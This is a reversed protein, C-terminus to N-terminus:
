VTNIDFDNHQMATNNYMVFFYFLTWEAIGHLSHTVTLELLMYLLLFFTYVNKCGIEVWNNIAIVVVIIGCELFLVLIDCHISVISAYYTGRSVFYEAITGFGNFGDRFRNLVDNVLYYRSASFKGIDLGFLDMFLTAGEKSYILLMIYPMLIFLVKTATKIINPVKNEGINSFSILWAGICMLLAVRKFSAICLITTLIALKRKRWSLLIITSICLVHAYSNETLASNTDNWNIALLNSITFDKGVYLFFSVIFRILMVYFYKRYNESEINAVSLVLVLPLVLYLLEKYLYLSMNGNVIQTFFSVFWIAGIIGAVKKFESYFVLTKSLRGNNWKLIQAVCYTCYLGLTALYVGRSFMGQMYAVYCINQLVYLVFPPSFNNRKIYLTM